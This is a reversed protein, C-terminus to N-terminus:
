DIESGVYTKKYKKSRIGAQKVLQDFFKNLSTFRRNLHYMKVNFMFIVQCEKRLCDELRGIEGERSQLYDISKQESSTAM